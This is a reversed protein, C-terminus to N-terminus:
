RADTAEQGHKGGFQEVFREAATSTDRPFGPVERETTDIRTGDWLRAHFVVKPRTRHPASSPSDPRVDLSVTAAYDLWSDAVLVRLHPPLPAATNTGNQWDDACQELWRRVGPVPNPFPACLIRAAEELGPVLEESPGDPLPREPIRTNDLWDAYDLRAAKQRQKGADLQDLLQHHTAVVRLLIGPADRLFAAMATNSTVNGNPEALVDHVLKEAEALSQRAAATLDQPTTM